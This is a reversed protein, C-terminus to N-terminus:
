FNNTKDCAPANKEHEVKNADIRKAFNLFSFSYGFWKEFM